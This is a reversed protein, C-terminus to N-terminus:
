PGRSAAMAPAGAERQHPMLMAALALPAMYSGFREVFEWIPTGSIPFLSESGLKWMVVFVLLTARPRIAVAAALAIEFWGVLPTTMEPLGILAYQKTLMAKGALGLAGHGALLLVTTWQLVRTVTLESAVSKASAPLNTVLDRWTRPLGVWLLLAFPVGYNGAREVMEFVSEGALPRLMATWLAWVSMYILPLRMPAFLIAMGALVDVAGVMPMIKWAWSEPIGVVAFYPLWGAKTIFGFAGHGIFVGAAGIRLAWYSKM